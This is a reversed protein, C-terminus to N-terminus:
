AHRRVLLRWTLSDPNNRHNRLRALRLVRTAVSRLPHSLVVAGGIVVLLNAMAATAATFPWTWLGVYGAPPKTLAVAIFLANAVGAILYFVIYFSQHLTYAVFYALDDACRRSRIALARRYDYRAASYGRRVVVLVFKGVRWLGTVVLAVFCVISAVIGAAVLADNHAVVFAVSRM